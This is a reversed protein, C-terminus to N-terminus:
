QHLDFTTIQSKLADPLSRMLLPLATPGEAQAQRIFRPLCAKLRSELDSSPLYQCYERASEFGDHLGNELSASVGTAHSDLCQLFDFRIRQDDPDFLGSCHGLFTGLQVLRAIPDEPVHRWVADDYPISHVDGSLTRSDRISYPHDRTLATFGYLEVEYWDLLGFRDAVAILDGTQTERLPIVRLSDILDDGDDSRYPELPMPALVTVGPDMSIGSQSSWCGGADPDTVRLVHHLAAYPPEDDNLQEIIERPITIRAVLTTSAIRPEVNIGGQAHEVQVVYARM